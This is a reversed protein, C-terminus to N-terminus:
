EHENAVELAKKPKRRRYEKIFLVRDGKFFLSPNVWFSASDKPYLFSKDLLERLGRKLLHPATNFSQYTQKPSTHAHWPMYKRNFNQLMLETGALPM